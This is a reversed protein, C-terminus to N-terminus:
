QFDSGKQSNKQKSLQKQRLIKLFFIPIHFLVKIRKPQVIIRWLWELGLKQLFKPSRRVNGSWVDLAGGLGASLTVSPIKVCNEYIWREQAPFGFCVFIIDPSASAIEKVVADNEEGEKQFYGHHAGCVTIHPYRKKIKEGAMKAVTEKGGLLFVRLKNENAMGLILEGIDIGAVRERIPSGLIQSAIVIGVGDALVLSSSNIIALLSTDKQAALAIEPNPTFISLYSKQSLSNKIIGEAESFSLNDFKIGLVDVRKKM